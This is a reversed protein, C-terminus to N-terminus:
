NTGGLPGSFHKGVWPFINILDRYSLSLILSTPGVTCWFPHDRKHVMPWSKHVIYVLALSAQKAAILVSTNHLVPWEITRCM